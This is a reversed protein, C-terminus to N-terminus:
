EKKAGNQCVAAVRQSISIKWRVASLNITIHRLRYFIVEFLFLFLPVLSLFYLVHLNPIIIEIICIERKSSNFEM